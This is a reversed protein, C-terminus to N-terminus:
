VPKMFQNEAVNFHRPYLDTTPFNGTPMWTKPAVVQTVGPDSLYGAWWSFTSNSIALKKTRSLLVMTELPGIENTEEFWVVQRQLSQPLLRRAVEPEDSFLLVPINSNPLIMTALARAFYSPEITAPNQLFRYDGLRFHVHAREGLTELIETRTRFGLSSNAAAKIRNRIEDGFDFFYRWSQFYGQLVVRNGLKLFEEDFSFSRESFFSFGKVLSQVEGKDHMVKKMGHDLLGLEFKRGYRDNQFGTIDGYLETDLRRALAFSASWIFLQNGLGGQLKAVVPM